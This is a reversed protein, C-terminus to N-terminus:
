SPWARNCSALLISSLRPICVEDDNTLIQYTQIGLKLAFKNKNKANLHSPTKKILFSNSIMIQHSANSFFGNWNQRSIQIWTTNIKNCSYISFFLDIETYKIQLDLAKSINHIIYTQYICSLEHILKIAFFALLWSSHRAELWCFPYETDANQMDHAHKMHLYSAGNPYVWIFNLKESFAM